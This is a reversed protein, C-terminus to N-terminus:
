LCREAAAENATKDAAKQDEARKKLIESVRKQVEEMSALAGTSAGGYGSSAAYQGVSTM